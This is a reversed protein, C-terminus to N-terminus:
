NANANPKKSSKVSSIFIYHSTVTVSRINESYKKEEESKCYEPYCDATMPTEPLASMEVGNVGVTYKCEQGKDCGIVLTWQKSPLEVTFPERFIKNYDVRSPSFSVYFHHTLPNLPM